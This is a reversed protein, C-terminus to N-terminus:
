EITMDYDVFENNDEVTYTKGFLNILKYDNYLTHDKCLLKCNKYQICDYFIRTAESTSVLQLKSWIMELLRTKQIYDNYIECKMIWPKFKYWYHLVFVKHKEPIGYSVLKGKSNYIKYKACSNWGYHILEHTYDYKIYKCYNNILMQDTGPCKFVIPTQLLKEYELFSPDNVILFGTNMFEFNFMDTHGKITQHNVGIFPKDQAAIIPDNLDNLVIADADIFIYPNKLLCLNYLKFGVNHKWKNNPPPIINNEECIKVVIYNVNLLNIFSIINESLGKTLIIIDKISNNKYKCQIIQTLWVKLMNNYNEEDPYNFVTVIDM